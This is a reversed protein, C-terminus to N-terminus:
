GEDKSEKTMWGPFERDLFSRAQDWEKVGRVGFKLVLVALLLLANQEDPEKNLSQCGDQYTLDHGIATEVATGMGIGTNM